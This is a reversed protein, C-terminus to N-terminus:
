VLAEERCVAGQLHYAVKFREVFPNITQRCRNLCFCFKPSPVSQKSTQNPSCRNLCRFLFHGTPLLLQLHRSAGHVTLIAVAPFNLEQGQIHVHRQLSPPACLAFPGAIALGFPGRVLSPGLPRGPHSFGLQPGLVGHGRIVRYRDKEYCSSGKETLLKDIM